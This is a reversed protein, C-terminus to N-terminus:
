RALGGFWKSERARREREQTRRRQVLAYGCGAGTIYGGLHAAHDMKTLRSLPFVRLFRSPTVMSFVETAVLCALFIWGQTWITERLEQPLIWMTIKDSYIINAILLYM